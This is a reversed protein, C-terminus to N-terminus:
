RTKKIAQKVKFEELAVLREVMFGKTTPIGNLKCQREVWDNEQSSLYALKSKLAPIVIKKIREVLLRQSNDRPEFDPLDLHFSYLNKEDFSLTASLGTVLRNEFINNEQWLRLM